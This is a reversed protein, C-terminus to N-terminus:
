DQYTGNKIPFIASVNNDTSIYKKDYAEYEAMVNESQLYV